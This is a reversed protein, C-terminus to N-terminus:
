IKDDKAFKLKDKCVQVSQPLKLDVSAIALKNDQTLYFSGPESLSAGLCDVTIKM